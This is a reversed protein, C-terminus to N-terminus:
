RMTDRLGTIARDMASVNILGSRPFELDLVVYVTASISLAFVILQLVNRDPQASMAYGSLVGGIGCLMLLLGVILPPLHAQQAMARTTTIDFMDNLAPLLLLCATAAQAQGCNAVAHAWIERQLKTGAAMAADFREREATHGYVEIRSELYRRLLGRAAPQDAAPLLDLRLWATGIANAEQVILNRRMALRDSAGSFSLALTLGLLGLIAAEVTGSGAADPHQRRWRRGLRFGIEACGVIGVLLASAAGIAVQEFNM